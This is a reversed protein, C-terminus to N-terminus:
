DPASSVRRGERDDLRDSTRWDSGFACEMIAPFHKRMFAASFLHEDGRDAFEAPLEGEWSEAITYDNVFDTIERATIGAARRARRDLYFGAATTKEVISEEKSLGFHRDLDAALPAPDFPWGGTTSTTLGHDATVILVYNGVNDDLFDVLRGVADDEARLIERMEASDMSYNHGVIDAMKINAFFLDPMADRGYGENRLMKLIGELQWRVWAPNEHRDLIDHGMWKGDLEGDQRDVERAHKDLTEKGPLYGPTSYLEENGAVQGRGLLLGLQDADGGRTQKGHGLLGLHWASWGLLGVLPRNDNARDYLDGFTPVEIDSPDRGVNATKISGDGARMQISPIGHRRPYVGTGITAHTAPTISPTSGLTADVYSTGNEELAALNPWFDPWRELVNRGVGDLVLTVILRPKGRPRDTLAERLPEGARAPLDARLLRDMTPYIDTLDVARDITGANDIHRGYLILPVEQLYDWPGTHGWYGFSGPYNPYQPVFLLEFTRGDVYGRWLRSLIDEDLACGREVPDNTPFIRTSDDSLTQESLRDDRERVVAFLAVGLLVVVVIALLPRSAWLARPGPVRPLIPAGSKM